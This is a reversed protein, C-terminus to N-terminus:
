SSKLDDFRYESQNSGSNKKCLWLKGREREREQRMREGQKSWLNSPFFLQVSIFWNKVLIRSSGSLRLSFLRFLSLRSSINRGIAAKSKQTSDKAGLPSSPLSLPMILFWLSWHSERQRALKREEQKWWERRLAPRPLAFSEEDPSILVLEAMLSHSVQKRYNRSYKTTMLRSIYSQSGFITEVQQAKM